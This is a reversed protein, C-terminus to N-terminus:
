TQTERSQHATPLPSSALVRKIFDQIKDNMGHKKKKTRQKRRQERILWMPQQIEPLSLTAPTVEWMTRTLVCFALCRKHINEIVIFVPVKKLLYRKFPSM